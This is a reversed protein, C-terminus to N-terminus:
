GQLTRVTPGTPSAVWHGRLQITHSFLFLSTFRHTPLSNMPPVNYDTSKIQIRIKKILNDRGGVHTEFEHGGFDLTVREVLQILWPGM